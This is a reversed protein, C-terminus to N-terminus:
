GPLVADDFAEVRPDPVFLEVTLNEAWQSIRLDKDFLQTMGIALLGIM